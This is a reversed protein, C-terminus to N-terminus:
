DAIVALGAVRTIPRGVMELPLAGGTVTVVGPLRSVEIMRISPIIALGAM